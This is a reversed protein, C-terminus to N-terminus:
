RCADGSGTSVCSKRAASHRASPISALGHSLVTVSGVGPTGSIASGGNSGSTCGGVLALTHDGAAIVDATVGTLHIAPFGNYDFTISVAEGLQLSSSVIPAGDLRLWWRVFNSTTCDLQGAGTFDVLLRGARTTTFTTTSTAVGATPLTPAGGLPVIQNVQAKTLYASGVKGALKRANPANAIINDPLRGTRKSTAVLKGKRAKISASASVAHKHDVTHANVARALAPGGAFGVSMILASAALVIAVRNGTRPSNTPM